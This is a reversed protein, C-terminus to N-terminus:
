LNWISIHVTGVRLLFCVLQSLLHALLHLAVSHCTDYFLNACLLCPTYQPHQSSSVHTLTTTSPPLSFYPQLPLLSSPLPRFLQSNIWSALLQNAVARLDFRVKQRNEYLKIPVYGLGNMSTKDIVSKISSSRFQAVTASLGCQWCLCFYKSGQGECFFLNSVRAVHLQSNHFFKFHSVSIIVSHPPLSGPHSTPHFATLGTLSTCNELPRLRKRTM